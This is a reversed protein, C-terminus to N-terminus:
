FRLHNHNDIFLTWLRRTSPLELRKNLVLSEFARHNNCAEEDVMAWGSYMCMSMLAGEMEM